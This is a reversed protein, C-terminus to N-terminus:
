RGLAIAMGLLVVVVALLLWIDDPSSRPIREPERPNIYKTVSRDRSVSGCRQCALGSSLATRKLDESGCRDCTQPIYM